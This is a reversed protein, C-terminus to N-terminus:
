AQEIAWTLHEILIDNKTFNQSIHDMDGQIKQLSNIKQALVTRLQDIAEDLNQDYTLESHNREIKKASLKRLFNGSVIALNRQFQWFDIRRMSSGETNKLFDQESWKWFIFLDTPYPRVKFDLHQSKTAFKNWPCILQCEDCGYLHLGILPRLDLDIPGQYEITLYSICRRADLVYPKIIAKTPCIDICKQCSGCHSKLPALSLSHTTVPKVKHAQNAKAEHIFPKFLAEFFDIGQNFLIGGLFFLSGQKPHILLGHKGRWGLGGQTAAEVEMIPMTDTFVRYNLDFQKSQSLKQLADAIKKLHQKLVKHYDRGRAYWSIVPQNELEVWANKLWNQQNQHISQNSQSPHNLTYNDAHNTQLNISEQYIYPVRVMLMAQYDSLLNEPNERLTAHKKLYDMEGHYEDNLWIQLHQQAEGFNPKIFTFEFNLDAINKGSVFSESGQHNSLNLINLLDDTSIKELSQM